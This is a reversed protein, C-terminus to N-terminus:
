PGWPPRVARAEDLVRAAGAIGLRHAETCALVVDAAQLALRDLDAHGPPCDVLVVDAPTGGLVDRLPRGAQVAELGPGGPVLALPPAESICVPM